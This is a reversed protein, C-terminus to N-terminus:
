GMHYVFDARGSRRQEHHLGMAHGMEHIITQVNFCDPHLRIYSRGARRGTENTVCRRENNLRILVHSKKRNMPERLAWRLGTIHSLKNWEEAAQIVQNARHPEAKLADSLVYRILGDDWRRFDRTDAILEMSQSGVGY